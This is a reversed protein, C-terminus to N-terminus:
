FIKGYSTTSADVTSYEGSFQEGDPFAFGLDGQTGHDTYQITIPGLAAAETNLPYLRATASCGVVNCATHYVACGQLILFAVAFAYKM